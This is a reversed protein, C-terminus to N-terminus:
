INPAIRSKSQWAAGGGKGRSRRAQCLSLGLASRDCVRGRFRGYRGLSLFSDSLYSVFVFHIVIGAEWSRGWGNTGLDGSLKKKSGESRSLREEIRSM